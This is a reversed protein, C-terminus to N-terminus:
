GGTLKERLEQPRPMERPNIVVYRLKAGSLASGIKDQTATDRRDALDAVALVTLDARCVVIDFTTAAADAQDSLLPLVDAVGIKAFIHHAPMATRCILYLLKHEPSLLVPVANAGGLSTKPKLPMPQSSVPVPKALEASALPATPQVVENSHDGQKENPVSDSPVETVPPPNSAAGLQAATRRAAIFTELDNPGSGRKRKPVSTDLGSGTGGRMNRLWRYYLVVVAVIVALGILIKTWNM